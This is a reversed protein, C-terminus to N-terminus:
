IRREETYSVLLVGNVTIAFLFFLLCYFIPVFGSIVRKLPKAFYRRIFEPLKNAFINAQLRDDNLMAIM